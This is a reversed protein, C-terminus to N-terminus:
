GHKQVRARDLGLDGAREVRRLPGLPRKIGAGAAGKRRAVRRPASRRPRVRRAAGRRPAPAPACRAARSPLRLPRAGDRGIRQRQAIHHQRPLIRRRAIMERHRDVIRQLAHRQHRAAGIEEGRGMDMAQQLRQEVQRRRKIAMVATRVSAASPAVGLAVAGEGQAGQAFRAARGLLHPRHRASLNWDLPRHLGVVLDLYEADDGIVGHRLAFDIIVLNVNFKFDDTARVSVVVDDAPMLTFSVLEGDTNSPVFDAPVELDYLFLVDDRLGLKTEMRYSVAGVAIAREALKRRPRAEEASEKVLTAELGHALGIGGAVMNDLKGPAVKKDAARHGIWMM